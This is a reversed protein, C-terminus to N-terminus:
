VTGASAMFDPMPLFLPTGGVGPEELESGMEGLFVRPEAESEESMSDGRGAGVKVRGHHLPLGTGDARV